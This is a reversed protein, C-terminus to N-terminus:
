HRPLSAWTPANASSTSSSLFMTASCIRHLSPSDRRKPFNTPSKPPRQLITPSAPFRCSVQDGAIFMEIGYGKKQGNDHRIRGVLVDYGAIRLASTLHLQLPRARSVHPAGHSADLPEPHKNTESGFVCHEHSYNGRVITPSPLIESFHRRGELHAITHRRTALQLGNAVETPQCIYPGTTSL